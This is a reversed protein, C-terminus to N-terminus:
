LFKLAFTAYGPGTLYFWIKYASNPDEHWSWYENPLPKKTWQQDWFMNMIQRRCASPGFTQWHWDMVAMNLKVADGRDQLVYLSAASVSVRHTFLQHGTYRGDLREVKFKVDELM